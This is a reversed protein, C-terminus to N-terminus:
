EDLCNGPEKWSPGPYPLPIAHTNRYYTGLTIVINTHMDTYSRFSELLRWNESILWLSIFHPDWNFHVVILFM